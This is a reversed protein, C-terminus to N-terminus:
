HPGMQAIDMFIKSTFNAVMGCIWPGCILSSLFTAMLKPVFSLTQEQVQTTAQIVSIVLGVALASMLMPASLLLILYLAQSSIELIYEDTFFESAAMILHM